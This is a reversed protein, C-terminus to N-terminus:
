ILGMEKSVLGFLSPLPATVFARELELCISSIAPTKLVM